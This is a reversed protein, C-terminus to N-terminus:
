FGIPWNHVTVSIGVIANAMILCVHWIHVYRKNMTIKATKTNKRLNVIVDKLSVYNSKKMREHKLHSQVNKM